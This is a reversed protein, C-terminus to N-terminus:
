YEWLDTRSEGGICFVASGHEGKVLDVRIWGTASAVKAEYGANPAAAILRCVGNEIAFSVSGGKVNVVRLNGTSISRTRTVTPKPMAPSPTPRSPGADRTRAPAAARSPSRAPQSGTTDRTPPILRPVPTRVSKSSATPVGIVQPGTPAGAPLRSEGTRGIAANLPEISADEFVENRLVDRVGFWAVSIALVTAGCWVAIFGLTQRM